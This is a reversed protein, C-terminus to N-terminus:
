LIGISNCYEINKRIYEKTIESCVINTNELQSRTWEDDFHHSMYVYNFFHGLSNKMMIGMNSDEIEIFQPEDVDLISCINTVLKKVPTNIKNVLNYTKGITSEGRLSLELMAKVFYDVPVINVSSSENCYFEKIRKRNFFKIFKYIINNEHTSGDESSSNVISPRYITIPWGKSIYSDLLKECEFKTEEYTNSFSQNKNLDIEKFGEVCSGSIYATSIYNLRDFNKNKIDELLKLMIITGGCNIQKAEEYTLSFKISAACHYISTINECIYNYNEENLGLNIGKIDGELVVIRDKWNDESYEHLGKSIEQIVRNRASNKGKSRAIAYIINSEDKLLEICVNSGVFGNAGTVLIRNM